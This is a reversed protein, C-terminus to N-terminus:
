YISHTKILKVGKKKILIYTENTRHIQSFEM